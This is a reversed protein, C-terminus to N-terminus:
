YRGAVYGGGAVLGVLGLVVMILILPMGIGQITCEMDRSDMSSNYCVDTANLDDCLYDSECNLVDQDRMDDWSGQMDDWMGSIFAVGVYVFVIAMIIGIGATVMGQMQGRNNM